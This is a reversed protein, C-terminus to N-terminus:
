GDSRHTRSRSRGSYLNHRRTTAFPQPPDYPRHPDYLHVWLFYPRNGISEIWALADDVVADGRRHRRREGPTPNVSVGEYTDFGQALGRDLDLM